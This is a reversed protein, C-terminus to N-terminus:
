LAGDMEGVLAMSMEQRRSGASLGRQGIPSWPRIPSRFRRM